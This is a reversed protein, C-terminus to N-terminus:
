QGGECDEVASLLWPRLEPNMHYWRYVTPCDPILAVAVTHCAWLALGLVLVGAVRRRSM